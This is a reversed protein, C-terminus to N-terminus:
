KHLPTKLLIESLDFDDPIVGFEKLGALLDANKDAKFPYIGGAHKITLTNTKGNITVSSILSADLFLHEYCGEGIYQKLHLYKSM